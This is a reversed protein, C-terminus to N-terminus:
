GNAQDEKKRLMLVMGGIAFMVICGIVSYQFYPSEWLFAMSGIFIGGGVTMAGSRKYPTFAAVLAGIFCLAVGCLGFMISLNEKREEILQTKMKEIQARAEATEKSLQEKLKDKETKEKNALAEAALKAKEAEQMRGELTATVRKLAADYDAKTGRGTSGIILDAEINIASKSNADANKQNAVKIAEASASVRSNISENVAIVKEGAPAAKPEEKSTWLACSSLTFAMLCPLFFRTLKEM